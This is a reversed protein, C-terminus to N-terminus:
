RPSSAAARATARHRLPRTRRLEDAKGFNGILLKCVLAAASRPRSSCSSTSRGRQAALDQAAGDADDHRGPQLAGGSTEGLAYIAMALVIAHTLAITLLAARDLGTPATVSVAMCIFLVLFFTGIFEAIFASVGREEM